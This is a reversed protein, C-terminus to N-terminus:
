IAQDIARIRAPLSPGETAPRGFVPPLGQSKQKKIRRRLERLMLRTPEDDPAIRRARLLPAIAASERGSERLVTAILQLAAIRVHEPAGPAAAYRGYALARRLKAGRDRAFWGRRWADYEAECASGDAFASPFATQYGHLAEAAVGLYLCRAMRLHLDARNPERHLEAAVERMRRGVHQNWTTPEPRVRTRPVGAPPTSGVEQLIGMCGLVTLAACASVRGVTAITSSKDM